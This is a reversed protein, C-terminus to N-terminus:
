RTGRVEEMDREGRLVCVVCRGVSVCAYGGFRTARLSLERLQQNKLRAANGAGGSGTGADGYPGPGHNTNSDSRAPLHAPHPSCPTIACM